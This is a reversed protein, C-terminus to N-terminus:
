IENNVNKPPPRRRDGCDKETPLKHQLAGTEAQRSQIKEGQTNSVARGSHFVGRYM